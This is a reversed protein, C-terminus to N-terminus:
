GAQCWPHVIAQCCRDARSAVGTDVMEFLIRLVVLVRLERAHLASAAIVTLPNLASRVSHLRDHQASPKQRTQKSPTDAGAPATLM